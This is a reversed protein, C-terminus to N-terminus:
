EGPSVLLVSKGGELMLDIKSYLVGGRLETVAGLPTIEGTSADWSEIGRHDGLLYVSRNYESDTGNSFFYVNCNEIRKHIYNLMGGGRISSSLGLLCYEPYNTNLAGTYEMRPMNDIYIDYAVGFSELAEFIKACPVANCRDVGTITSYLFYAEGGKENKNYIFDGTINENEAGDGFVHVALARVEESYSKGGDEDVEAASQPLVGTCIIKGGEDFFKAASRMSEVSIVPTAPIVLINYAGNSLSKELIEPHVVTIDRGSYSRISNIVSMYDTTDPTEPYEFAGEPVPSEYLSVASHLSYIPYLVAVDNVSDGHRLVSQLRGVYKSYDGLKDLEPPLHAMMMNAGRAFATSTERYIIEENIKKYDVFAECAVTNKGGIEAAGQAIELSNVGYLYAKELKACPSNTQLLMADGLLWSGSTIQPETLSGFLRMGKENAKDSLAKMIGGALMKARCAMLMPKYHKPAGEECAYLCPYFPAPDFGYLEAFLRGYGEDFNRRNRATFCIDSFYIADLTKGIHRSLTNEFLEMVADLYKISSEYNMMNVRDSESDEACFYRCIRWNGRPVKFNLVGDAVFPRLDIIEGREELAVASMIEEGFPIKVEEENSCFYERKLIVRSRISEDDDFYRVIAAEISHELNLAVKIGYEEAFGLLESYIRIFNMPRLYDFDDHAVKPIILGIKNEACKQVARKIAESTCELSFDVFLSLRYELPMRLFDNKLLDYTGMQKIDM